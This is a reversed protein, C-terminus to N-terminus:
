RRPRGPGQPLHGERLHTRDSLRTLFLTPSGLLGHASPNAHGTGTFIYRGFLTVTNTGAPVLGDTSMGARHVAAVIGTGVQSAQDQGDYAWYRLCGNGEVTCTPRGYAPLGVYAFTDSVITLM